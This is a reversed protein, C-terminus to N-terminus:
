IETITLLLISLDSPKTHDDYYFLAINDGDSGIFEKADDITNYLIARNIINEDSFETLQCVNFNGMVTREIAIENTEKKYILYKKINM